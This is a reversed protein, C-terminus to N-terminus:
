YFNSHSARKAAEREELFDNYKVWNKSGDANQWGCPTKDTIKLKATLKKKSIVKKEKAVFQTGFATGDENTLRAFKIVFTKVTGNFDVTVNESDQSIIQGKGFQTHNVIMINQKM